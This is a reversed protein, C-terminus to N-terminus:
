MNRSKRIRYVSTCYNVIGEAQQRTFGEAQMLSQVLTEENIGKSLAKDIIDMRQKINQRMEERKEAPMEMFTELLTGVYAKAKAEPMGVATLTAITTNTDIGLAIDAMVVQTLGSQMLAVDPDALEKLAPPNNISVILYLNGTPGENTQSKGRGKTRIKTGNKVGPPIKIELKRDQVEIIKSSGSMAEDPTLIIDQYIDLPHEYDYYTLNEQAIKKVPYSGSFEQNIRSNANTNPNFNTLPSLFAIGVIIGAIISYFIVSANSVAILAVIIFAIFGFVLARQWVSNKMRHIMDTQYFGCNPCHYNRVTNKLYSKLNHNANNEANRIAGDKNLWLVNTASGNTQHKIQYAYECGCNECTVPKWISGSVTVTYKTGYPIRPM